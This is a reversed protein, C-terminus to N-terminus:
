GRDARRTGSATLGLLLDTVLDPRSLVPCHGVPWEHREACRAAMARQVAPDLARDAACVVYSSPTERWAHRTPRARGYGPGQPRLWSVASAALDDACDHYLVEVARDPLLRTTGDPSETVAAALRTSTGGVDATSEGVDLAFGAVYVLHAVGRLGTAVSGGYSHGLVVPPEPLTDVLRQVHVTDAALSGRQLRPTHVPIRHRRLAARLPGFHRPTHWRGPLLVVPTM